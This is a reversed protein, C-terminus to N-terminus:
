FYQTNERLLGLVELFKKNLCKGFLMSNVDIFHEKKYMRKSAIAYFILLVKLFNSITKMDEVSIEKKYYDRYLNSKWNIRLFDIFYSYLYHPAYTLLSRCHRKSRERLVEDKLLFEDKKISLESDFSCGAIVTPFSNYLDPSFYLRQRLNEYSKETRALKIEEQKLIGLIAEKKDDSLFDAKLRRFKGIGRYRTFHRKWLNDDILDRSFEQYSYYLRVTALLQRIEESVESSELKLYNLNENLFKIFYNRYIGTKLYANMICNEDQAELKSIFNEVCEAGKKGALLYQTPAGVIKKRLFNIWFTSIPTGIKILLGTEEPLKECRLYNNLSQELLFSSLTQNLQEINGCFEFRTKLDLLFILDTPRLLNNQIKNVVENASSVLSSIKDPDTFVNVDGIPDGASLFDRELFDIFKPGPSGLPDSNIWYDKKLSEENKVFVDADQHNKYASIETEDYASWYELGVTNGVLQHEYFKELFGSSM